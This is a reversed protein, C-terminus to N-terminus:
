TSVPEKVANVYKPLFEDVLTKPLNSVQAVNTQNNAGGQLTLLVFGVKSEPTPNLVANLIVAVHENDM